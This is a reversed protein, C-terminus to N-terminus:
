KLLEQWSMRGVRVNLTSATKTAINTTFVIDGIFVPESLYGEQRIGSVTSTSSGNSVTDRRDVVGNENSDFAPKTTAGGSASDVAMKFGFGGGACLSNEPVFTNFFVVDSRVVASSVSREGDETLAFFWGYKTTYNVPHNSLVRESYSNDISQEVLDTSTLNSRSGADWIGYFHNRTVDAKDDAELYQGSGFFVLVNPSNTSSTQVSPHFSLAPKATIPRNDITTFLPTSSALTWTASSTGSLDFVWLQGKLDGAYVRDVDGDGDIDALRPTSLGNIDSVSGSRTSIKVFDTALWGNIGAEIDVIYLAAEGSGSNNYGNGFIAVWRGNNALAIQPKSYTFGLDSDDANTFEWLVMDAANQESFSTPDTINLAYIGRGGARLGSILVTNWAVTGGAGTSSNIYVDSVSPTLDNYYKHTYDPDTLYHLGADRASSYIINPIYAFLEKGDVEEFAHLMADNSGAYIVGSRSAQSLKFDSYRQGPNNPFPSFDPWALDPKAVYVPSSNIIDGLISSRVRFSSGVGENSRDGRIFNLRKTAETASEIGGLNLDNKHRASISAWRFAVGTSGNYTIIDREGDHTTSGTDSLDRADLVSKAKWNAASSLEGTAINTIQFAQIDGQWNFGNFETLYVVTDTTLKSSSVAVASVTAERRTIDRIITSLSERLTEANNANLYKGRGNYTAHLLDDITTVSNSSIPRWRFGSASPDPVYTGTVGFAIAYTVLHQHTANDVGESPSVHDPLGPKLDNEYYYMAVDALTNVTIPVSSASTNVTIGPASLDGFNKNDVNGTTTGNILRGNGDFITNNDSDADGVTPDIRSNWFGDTMLIQYNKQCAGGEEESLIPSSSGKFMEGVKELATRLPTPGRPSINYLSHLLATKNTENSMSVTDQLHVDNSVFRGDIFELNNLVDLGMRASNTANIVAGVAAKMVYDRSRYYQFWNAFNQIEQAYTRGNFLHANAPKIEVEVYGDTPEVVGDGDTDIWNYYTPLYVQFTQHPTSTSDDFDFTAELDTRRGSSLTLDERVSNVDANLYPNGDSDTGSWPFYNILPNYYITNAASTKAMWADTYSARPPVVGRHPNWGPHLYYRNLGNIKPLANSTVESFRATASDVILEGKMSGSDDLIFHINPEVPTLLFLPVNALNLRAAYSVSPITTTTIFFLMLLSIKIWSGNTKIKSNNM